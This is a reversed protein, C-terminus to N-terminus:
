PLAAGPDTERKDVFDALRLWMEAMGMLVAKDEANRSRSSMVICEAAYRRYVDAATIARGMDDREM